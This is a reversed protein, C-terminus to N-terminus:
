AKRLERYLWAKATAWERKVTAPSIGIVKATEDISLGGFFRAEVVKALREDFAALRTLAEDLAEVDVGRDEPSDIAEDFTVKTVMGGRKEARRQRAHDVLIRRMMQAAIGIFHARDQWQVRNQDVLRMYAENVLATPQLTHDAREKRLYGGALNRLESQLLPILEDLARQEGARWKKLLLTVEQPPESM